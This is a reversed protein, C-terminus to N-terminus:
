LLEKAKVARYKRLAKGPIMVANAPCFNFCRLCLECSDHWLPYERMEINKVPCLDACLGCQRCKGKDPYIKRGEALNIRKMMFDNCCIHYLGKSLFPLRKWQTDGAMLAKAYEGAKERGRAIRERNKEQDIKKPFWNNPMVIECAGICTYGKSSLVKKLPGVIAGSFVMMTDVMFVPTEKAQPLNKFFDWVFPFTSQFAVPFALGITNGTDITKPDTNELKHLHIRVGKAAFVETMEKVILLTNGTGSYFYFDIESGTM